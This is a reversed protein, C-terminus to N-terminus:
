QLRIAKLVSAFHKTFIESEEQTFMKNCNKFVKGYTTKSRGHLNNVICTRPIGTKKSAETISDYYTGNEDKIPTGLM